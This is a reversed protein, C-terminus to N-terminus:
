KHQILPVTGLTAMYLMESCELDVEQQKQSILLQHTQKLKEVKQRHDTKNKEMDQGVPVFM